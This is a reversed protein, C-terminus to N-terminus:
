PVTHLPHRSTGPIYKGPIALPSATATRATARPSPEPRRSGRRPAARASSSPASPQTRLSSSPLTSTWASPGPRRDVIEDGEQPLPRRAGPDGADLDLRLLGLPVLLERDAADAGADEDDLLVGGGGVM